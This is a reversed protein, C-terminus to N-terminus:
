GCGAGIVAIGAGTAAGIAPGDVAGASIPLPALKPRVMPEFTHELVFRGPSLSTAVNFSATVPDFPATMGAPDVTTSSTADTLAPSLASAACSPNRTRDTTM